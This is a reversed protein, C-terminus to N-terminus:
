KYGLHELRRELDAQETDDLGPAVGSLTEIQPISAASLVDFTEESLDGVEEVITDGRRIAHGDSTTVRVAANSKSVIRRHGDDTLPRTHDPTTQQWDLVNALTAPIDGTQVIHSFVEGGHTGQPFKVSLPVRVLEDIPNATWDHQYVDQEGFAEGHDALLIILSDEWYGVDRLRTFFDNLCRDIYRVIEGYIERCAEIEDPTPRPLDADERDLNMSRLAPGRIKSNITRVLEDDYEEHLNRDAVKQPYYPHHPEMLHVWYFSPSSYLSAALKSLITGTTRQEDPELEEDTGQTSPLRNHVADHAKRLLSIEGAKSKVTDLLTRTEGPKRTFEDFGRDYGRDRRLHPNNSIAYTNGTFSEAITKMDAPLAGDDTVHQGTHISPFAVPTAVGNTYATTFRAFETTITDWTAPFYSETFHDARLADITILFVNTM